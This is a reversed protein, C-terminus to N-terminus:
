VPTEACANCLGSRESVAFHVLNSWRPPQNSCIRAPKWESCAPDPRIQSPKPSSLVCNPEFTRLGIGSSPPPSQLHGHQLHNPCSPVPTISRHPHVMSLSHRLLHHRRCRLNTRIRTKSPYKRHARPRGVGSNPGSKRSGLCSAAETPQGAGGASPPAQTQAGCLSPWTFLAGESRGCTVQLPLGPAM